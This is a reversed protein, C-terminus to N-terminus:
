KKLKLMVMPPKLLVPNDIDYLNKIIGDMCQDVKNIHDLGQYGFYGYFAISGDPNDKKNIILYESKGLNLPYFHFNKNRRIYLFGPEISTVIAEEPLTEIPMIRNGVNFDVIEYYLSHIYSHIINNQIKLRNSSDYGVFCYFVIILSFYIYIANFRKLSTILQPLIKLYSYVLFPFYLTHYHTYFGTKEGGGINGLLNPTLMVICIIFLKRNFFLVPLLIPLWTVLLSIFGNLFYGEALRDYIGKLSLPIASSYYGNNIYYKAFFIFSLVSILGIILYIFQKTIDKKKYFLIAYLILFIGNYILVKEVILSSILIVFIAKLSFSKQTDVLYFIILGLPLYLRDVYPQGQFSISWAPFFTITILALISLYWSIKEKNIIYGCLAIFFVFCSANVWQILYDASIIKAIFSLPYLIFYTHFKFHNFQESSYISPVFNSSCIKEPSLDGLKSIMQFDIFSAQAPNYAGFGKSLNELILYLQATDAHFTHGGYIRLTGLLLSILLLLAVILATKLKVSNM